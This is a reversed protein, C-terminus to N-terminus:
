AMCRRYTEVPMDLEAMRGCYDCKMVDREDCISERITHSLTFYGGCDCREGFIDM